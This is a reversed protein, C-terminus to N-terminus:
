LRLASVASLRRGGHHLERHRGMPDRDLRQIAKVNAYGRIFNSQAKEYSGAELWGIAFMAWTMAPGNPDTISDYNVLDNVRVKASMNMLLPFGLLIADAQKIKTGKTYGKFEPHYQNKEDFPIYLNQSM